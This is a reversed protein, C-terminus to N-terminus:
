KVKATERRAENQRALKAKYKEMDLIDGCKPCEAIGLRYPEGCNPCEQRNVEQTANGIWPSQAITRGIKRAAMYHRGDGNSLLDNLTKPGQSFAADAEAVLARFYDTLKARADDLEKQTPVPGDALFVGYRILANRPNLHPGIGLIQMAVTRGEEPNLMKMQGDGEPYPEQLIGKIKLPASYEADPLCAPIYFNGLSGMSQNFSWPGVNFIYVSTRESLDEIIPLTRPANNRYSSAQATAAVRQAAEQASVTLNM